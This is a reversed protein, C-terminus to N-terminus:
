LFPFNVRDVWAHSKYKKEMDKVSFLLWFRKASQTLDSVSFLYPPLSVNTKLEVFRKAEWLNVRKKKPITSVPFSIQKFFLLCVSTVRKPFNQVLRKSSFFDKGRRRHPIAAANRRQKWRPQRKWKKWREWFFFFSFRAPCFLFSKMVKELPRVRIIQVKYTM